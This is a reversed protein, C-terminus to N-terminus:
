VINIICVYTINIYIANIKVTFVKYHNGYYLVCTIVTSTKYKLITYPLTYM